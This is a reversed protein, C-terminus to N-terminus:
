EPVVSEQLQQLHEGLTGEVLPYTPEPAPPAQESPRLLFIAGVAGAIVVLSAVIVALARRSHRPKEAPEDVTDGVDAPVPLLVPLPATAGETSTGTGTGTGTAAGGLTGPAADSVGSADLVRTPTAAVQTVAPEATAQRFPGPSSWGSLAAQAAAASIRQAPSVATMSGLLAADARSLEEPLHPPRSTRGTLSEARTGPFPHAGTLGELV